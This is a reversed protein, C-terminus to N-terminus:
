EEPYAKDIRRRILRRKSDYATPGLGILERLEDAAMDEMTGEVIDRALQDAVPEMLLPADVQLRAASEGAGVSANLAEVGGRMFDSCWLRVTDERFGFAHAIRGSTWAALTPLVASARIRWRRM